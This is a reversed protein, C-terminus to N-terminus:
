PQKTGQKVCAFRAPHLMEDVLRKFHDEDLAPYPEKGYACSTCYLMSGKTAVDDRIGFQMAFPIGEKQCIEIVQAILPSIKSDYISEKDFKM